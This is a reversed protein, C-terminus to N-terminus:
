PVSKSNRGVWLRCQCRAGCATVEEEEEEEDMVEGESATQDVERQRCHDVSAAASLDAEAVRVPTTKLSPPKGGETPVAPHGPGPWFRGFEENQTTLRPNCSIFCIRGFRVSLSVPIVSNFASYSPTFYTSMSIKCRNRTEVRELPQSCLCM